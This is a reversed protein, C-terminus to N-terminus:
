MVYSIMANLNLNSGVASLSRLQSTEIDGDMKDNVDNQYKKIAEKLDSNKLGNGAVGDLNSAIRIM